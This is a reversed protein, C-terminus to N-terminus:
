FYVFSSWVPAATVRYLQYIATKLSIKNKMHRCVYTRIHIDVYPYFHVKKVVYEHERGITYCGCHITGFRNISQFGCKKHVCECIRAYVFTYM